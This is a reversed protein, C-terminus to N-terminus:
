LLFRHIQGIRNAICQFGTARHQALALVVQLDRQGLLGQDDVAVHHTQRLHNRVQEVVGCFVRGFAAVDAQGQLAVAAPGADAHAIRPQPDRGLHEGIHEGHEGLDVSVQLTGLPAQPDAQRQDFPQDFQVAAVDGDGAVAFTLAGLEQHAQREGDFREM